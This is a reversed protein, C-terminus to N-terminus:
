PLYIPFMYLESQIEFYSYFPCQISYVPSLVTTEVQTVKFRYRNPLNVLVPFPMTTHKSFHNKSFTIHHTAWSEPIWLDVKTKLYGYSLKDFNVFSNYAIMIVFSVAESTSHPELLTDKMNGGQFHQLISVLHHYKETSLTSLPRHQGSQTNDSSEKLSSESLGGHM